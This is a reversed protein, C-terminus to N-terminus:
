SARKYALFHGYVALPWKLFSERGWNLISMKLKSRNNTKTILLKLSTKKFFQIFMPTFLDRYLSITLYTVYSYLCFLNVIMLDRRCPILSVCEVIPIWATTPFKESTGMKFKNSLDWKTWCRGGAVAVSLSFIRSMQRCKALKHHSPLKEVDQWSSPFPNM